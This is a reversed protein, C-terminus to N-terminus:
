LGMEQTVHGPNESEGCEGRQKPFVQARKRGRSATRAKCFEFPLGTVEEGAERWQWAVRQGESDRLGTLHPDPRCLPSEM